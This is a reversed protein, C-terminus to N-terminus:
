QSDQNPLLRKDIGAGINRPIGRTFEENYINATECLLAARCHSSGANFACMAIGRETSLALGLLMWIMGAIKASPNPNWWLLM